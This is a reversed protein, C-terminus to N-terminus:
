FILVICCDGNGKMFTHTEFSVCNICNSTFPILAYCIQLSTKHLISVWAVIQRDVGAELHFIMTVITLEVNSIARVNLTVIV